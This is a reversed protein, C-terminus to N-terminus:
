NEEYMFTPGDSTMFAPEFLQDELGEDEDMPISAMNNNNSSSKNKVSMAKQSGATAPAAGFSNGALNKKRSFLIM